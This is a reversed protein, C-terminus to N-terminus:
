TPTPAAVSMIILSSSSRCSPRAAASARPSALSPSRVHLAADVKAHVVVVGPEVLLIVVVVQPIVLLLVLTLSHLRSPTFPRRACVARRYRQALRKMWDSTTLRTRGRVRPQPQPDAPNAAGRQVHARPCHAGMEAEADSRRALIAIMPAITRITAKLKNSGARLDKTEGYMSRM